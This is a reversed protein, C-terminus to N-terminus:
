FVRKVQIGNLITEGKNSKFGVHIGQGNKVSVRLKTAYAALPKLDAANNVDHLVEKDNILVDFSRSTFTTGEASAGLNYALGAQKVPTELEAFHLTVEYEGDAVDFNFGELGVRQTQYVPDDGTGTINKDTGFSQRGGGKLAYVHGGVYGWSGPKYEQEPLWVQHDEENVYIRRDGVSINLENFPLSTSKLNNDVMVFTIEAEDSQGNSTAIAELKNVGNVFPVNFKCVRDVAKQTAINEGNLVLKIEPQNTYVEVAEICHQKDNAIGSRLTWGRSGIRVFPAKLLNAQYFLYSDKVQRDVTLIGKNNIHPMSEERQESNFDALNWIAAGAVFPRATIAKLYVQHYLNVYEMSKDFREPNNSHIRPDADAGYESIIFPKDPMDKHFKDLFDAFGNLNPSYWGNYLNWGVIKPISLLGAKAYANYNGHCPLMTYRSSDEARALNEIQQALAALNKLYTGQREPDKFPTRLLIENMYAWVIISPHNYNQRIMETMMIKCNTGFTENDTIQNVIPIEESALLGMRDCAEIIAPDQPYHAIRVFNAGMAKLLEMDRVHIADPLANGLDKFDQHRSAGILKLPKGNLYFGNNADFRYWRFGLPNSVEDLVEKTKADTLTSVVRYLYPEDPSWLNPKTINKIQQNFAVKQGPIANVRSEGSAVLKGDRDFIQTLVKIDRKAASQNDISGKVNVLASTESVAPTSIFVGNSANNGTDFHLPNTAVLYVDRYIGGYFTFDASLPPVNEDHANTVKVTLENATNDSTGFKLLNSVPINFATYGGTHTGALKGNVYVWVQQDAGEFYLSVPRGKWASPIYLTKKYWGIGQYYGKEDDNVDKSNWTHPISIGEWNVNSEKEPYGAIDGKYFQWNTNVSQKIRNQASLSNAFILLLLFGFVTFKSLRMM